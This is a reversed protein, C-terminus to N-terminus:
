LKIAENQFSKLKGLDNRIRNFIQNFSQEDFEIDGYGYLSLINASFFDIIRQKENEFKIKIEKLNKQNQTDISLLKASNTAEYTKLERISQNQLYEIKIELSSVKSELQSNQALMMSSKQEYNSIENDLEKIIKQSSDLQLKLKEISEVFVRKTNEFDNMILSIEKQKEKKMEKIQRSTEKGIRKLERKEKINREHSDNKLIDNETQLQEILQNLENIKNGNISNISAIMRRLEEITSNKSQLSAEMTKLSEINQVSELDEPQRSVSVNHSGESKALFVKNNATQIEGKLAANEHILENIKRQMEDIRVLLMDEEKSKSEMSEKAEILSQHIDHKSSRLHKIKECLSSIVSPIEEFSKVGTQSLLDKIENKKLVSKSLESLEKKLRQNILFMSSILSQVYKDKSSFINNIRKIEEGNICDFIGKSFDEAPIEMKNAYTSILCLFQQDKECYMTSDIGNEILELNKWEKNISSILDYSEEIERSLVENENDLEKIQKVSEELNNDIMSIHKSLENFLIQIKQNSNFQDQAIITNFMERIKGCFPNKLSNMNVIDDSLASIISPQKKMKTILRNNENNMEEIQNEQHIILMNQKLLTSTFLDREDELHIIEKNQAEYQSQLQQFASNLRNMMQHDQEYLKKMQDYESQSKKLEEELTELLNTNNNLDRSLSNNSENLEKNNQALKENFRALYRCKEDLKKKKESIKKYKSSLTQYHESTETLEQSVSEYKQKLMSADKTLKNIEQCNNSIIEDKRAIENRNEDILRNIQSQMEKRQKEKADKCSTIANQLKKIDENLQPVATATVLADHLQNKTSELATQLQINKQRLSEMENKMNNIQFIDNRTENLSSYSFSMSKNNFPWLFHIFDKIHLLIM